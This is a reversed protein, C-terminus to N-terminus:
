HPGWFWLVVNKGTVTSPDFAAGTQDSGVLSLIEPRTEPGMPVAPASQGADTEITDTQTQQAATSDEPRSGSCASVALTTALALAVSRRSIM